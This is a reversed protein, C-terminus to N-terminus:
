MFTLNKLNKEERCRRRKELRSDDKLVDVRPEKGDDVAFLAKLCCLVSGCEKFLM